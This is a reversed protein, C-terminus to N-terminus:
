RNWHLARAEDGIKVWAYDQIVQTLITLLALAFIFLVFKM